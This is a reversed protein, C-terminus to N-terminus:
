ALNDAPPKNAEYFAATAATMYPILWLMGIGFTLIALVIWGFFSLELVLLKWVKGKMMRWSAKVAKWGRLEPHDRLLFVTMSTKLGIFLSPLLILFFTILLFGGVIGELEAYQIEQYPLIGYLAFLLATGPLMALVVVLVQVIGTLIVPFFSRFGDFLTSFTAKEGRVLALFTWSAGVTLLFSIIWSLIETLALLHGSTNRLLYSVVGAFLTIGVALGWHGHLSDFAKQRYDRSRWQM